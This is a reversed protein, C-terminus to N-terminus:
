LFTFISIKLLQNILRQWSTERAFKWQRCKNTSSSQNIRTCEVLKAALTNQKPLDSPKYQVMKVAMANYYFMRICEFQYRSFQVALKASFDLLFFVLMKKITHNMLVFIWLTDNYRQVSNKRKVLTAISKESTGFCM